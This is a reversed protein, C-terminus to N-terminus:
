ECNISPSEQCCCSCTDMYAVTWGTTYYYTLKGKNTSLNDEVEEKEEGAGGEDM